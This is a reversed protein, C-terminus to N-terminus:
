DIIATAIPTGQRDSHGIGPIVFGYAINNYYHIAAITLVAALVTAM